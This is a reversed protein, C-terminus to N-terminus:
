RWCTQFAAAGPLCSSKQSAGFASDSEKFARLKKKKRKKEKEKRFWHKQSTKCFLAFRNKRGQAFYPKRSRGWFLAMLRITGQDPCMCTVHALLKTPMCLIYRSLPATLTLSQRRCAIIYPKMWARSSLFQPRCESVRVCDIGRDHCKIEVSM